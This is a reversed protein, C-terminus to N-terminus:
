AQCIRRLYAATKSAECRLLASPAGEFLIKGGHKGGGPGLDIIHDAGALIDPHHEAVIVTNGRATLHRLLKILLAIDAGHLGAAPEDFVFIGQRSQLHAALKVRQCEGGSLTSTPQGLRMYGMGIQILPHLKRRIQPSDFFDCAETLTLSLAEVITRGRYRCALAEESYRSGHCAECPVSVPDLFAMETKRVGKGQCVPCAGKSSYSLLAAAVGNERAFLRRIEDMVGLYTAPTSRSSTGIPAQSIFVADPYAAPIAGCVLSTKGAGSVGTVATLAGIPFRVSLNQLNNQTAGQISLYGVPAFPACGVSLPRRLYAATHTSQTLLQAYSGEFVVEGGDAGALPGLDIIHDAAAIIDRHHEAVLVTNGRDRLTRLLRLLRAVDQAHLGASPEDFIYTMGVLSSGLHRVMRLRQVEGGSLTHAHRNLHLYDLGLAAISALAQRLQRVASAGEPADICGLYDLLAPIELQGAEHINRGALRSELVAPHFRAGHCAPCPIEQTFDALIKQASKRLSAASNRLYLRTIRDLLGEYTLTYDGWVKGTTNHIPVIPGSGHLFDHWEAPTFDCLPKDPDFLGSRAYLQWQYSGVQHGPMLIAGQSLSKQRCLVRDLDFAVQRGLGGCTPCMGQADYFSYCSSPGLHPQACRSFLLRLLPATDTMTAVTARADGTYQRQRVAIAPTLREIRDVLPPEYHPMRNRLYAPYTDNLQRMAEAAITDFLLSSKGSGSIGTFVVLKNKPIRLSIGKLNNQRAGTIIIEDIFAPM